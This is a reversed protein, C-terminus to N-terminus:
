NIAQACHQCFKAERPNNGGCSKCAVRENHNIAETVANSQKLATLLLWTTAALIALIFLWNYM